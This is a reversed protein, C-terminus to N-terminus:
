AVGLDTRSPRGCSVALKCSGRHMRALAQTNKEPEPKKGLDTELVYLSMWSYYRMQLEPELCNVLEIRRTVREDHSLGSKTDVSKLLSASLPNGFMDHSFTTQPYLDAAYSELWRLAESQSVGLRQRTAEARRRSM